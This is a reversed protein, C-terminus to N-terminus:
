CNDSNNNSYKVGNNGLCFLSNGGREGWIKVVKM